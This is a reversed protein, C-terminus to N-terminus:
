GNFVVSSGNWTFKAFARADSQTAGKSGIVVTRAIYTYVYTSGAAPIRGGNQAIAKQHADGAYTSPHPNYNGKTITSVNNTEILYSRVPNPVEPTPPIVIPPQPDPEDPVPTNNITNILTRYRAELEGMRASYQNRIEAVKQAVLNDIYSKPIADTDASTIVNAIVNGQMDVAHNFKNSGTFLINNSITFSRYNGGAAGTNFALFGDEEPNKWYAQGSNDCTLYKGPSGGAGGIDAAVRKSAKNELGDTPGLTIWTTGDFYKLRADFTDFHLMGPIRAGPSYSSTNSNPIRVGVPSVFTLPKTSDTVSITHSTHDIQLSM